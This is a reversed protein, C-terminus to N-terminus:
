RSVAPASDGPLGPGAAALPHARESVVPRLQRGFVTLPTDKAVNTNIAFSM